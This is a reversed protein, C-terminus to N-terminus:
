FKMCSDSYFMNSTNDVSYWRVVDFLLHLAINQLPLKEESILRPIIYWAISNFDEDSLEYTKDTSPLFFIEQISQSFRLDVNIQVRLHHLDAFTLPTLNVFPVM